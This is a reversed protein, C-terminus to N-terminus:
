VHSCELEGETHTQAVSAAPAPEFKALLQQVFRDAYADPPVVSISGSSGLYYTSKLSHETMKRLRWRQLVDIIGCYIVVADGDATAAQLMGNIGRLPVRTASEPAELVKMFTSDTETLQKCFSASAYSEDRLVTPAGSKSTDDSCSSGSGSTGDSCCVSEADPAGGEACTQTKDCPPPATHLHVERPELGRRGKFHLMCLLSYDVVGQRRLFASDAALQERVLECDTPSVHLRYKFDCDKLVCGGPSAKEQKSAWRGITSGKLDYTEHLSQGTPRLNNMVVLRINRGHATRIHVLDYFHPLLTRLRRNIALDKIHNTYNYLLSRLFASEGKSVTKIIFRGDATKFFLAGSKGPTTLEVLEDEGCISRKYEEDKVGFLARLHAFARPAAATFNFGEFPDDVVIQHCTCDERTLPKSYNPSMRMAEISAGLGRKIDAQLQESPHNKYTTEGTEPCTGRHRQRHSTPRGIRNEEESTGLGKPQQLTPQEDHPTEQLVTSASCGM